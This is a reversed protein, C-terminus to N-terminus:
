GLYYLFIGFVVIGAVIVLCGAGGGAIALKAGHSLGGQAPQSVPLQSDYPSAIIRVGPAAAVPEPAPAAADGVPEWFTWGEPAPPWAPDPTWGPPPTWGAPPAPWGPPPSFRYEM